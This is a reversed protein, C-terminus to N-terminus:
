TRHAIPLPTPYPAMGCRTKGRIVHNKSRRDQGPIISESAVIGPGVISAPKSSALRQNEVRPGPRHPHTQRFCPNVLSDHNGRSSAGPHHGPIIGRSSAGPHHGPIIAGPHHGPIITSCAGATPVAREFSNVGRTWSSTRIPAKEIWSPNLLPQKKRAIQPVIRRLRPSVPLPPSYGGWRKKPIARVPGGSQSLDTMRFVM